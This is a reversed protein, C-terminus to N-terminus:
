IKSVANLFTPTYHLSSSTTIILLSWRLLQEYVGEYYNNMFEM